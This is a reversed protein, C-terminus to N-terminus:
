LKVLVKLNTKDSVMNFGEEIREIPVTEGILPAVQIRRMAILHLARKRQSLTSGSSGLVNIQRYHILNPDVDFTAGEIFGAFLLIQGNRRTIKFAMPLVGPVSTAVITLCSGLGDTLTIVEDVVNKNTPDIVYDAGLKLAIERRMEIPEFLIIPAAGALRTLQVHILGIPGGGIIAVSDGVRIKTQFLGNLCAAVPEEFCAEQYDLSDPIEGIGLNRVVPGSIKIYEAYAGPNKPNGSDARELCMNQLGNRCFICKGCTIMDRVVARMGVRVNPDINSVNNGVEVVEGAYEHGLIRPTSSEKGKRIKSRIDLYDKIDSPCIGCYKVKILVEDDGVDPIPVEEVRLDKPGYLVAAKMKKKM